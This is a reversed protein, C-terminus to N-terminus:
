RLYPKKVCFAGLWKAICEIGQITLNWPHKPTLQYGKLTKNGQTPVLFPPAMFIHGFRTSVQPVPYNIDLSVEVWRSKQAFRDTILTWWCERCLVERYNSININQQFRTLCTRTMKYICMVHDCILSEVLPKM